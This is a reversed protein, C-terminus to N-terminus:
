GGGTSSCKQMEYLLLMVIGYLVGVVAAGCEYVLGGKRSQGEGRQEGTKM